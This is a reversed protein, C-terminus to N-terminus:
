DSAGEQIIRRHPLSVSRHPQGTLRHLHGYSLALCQEFMQLLNEAETTNWGKERMREILDAQGRCRMDGEMVHRSAMEVPTERKGMMHIM